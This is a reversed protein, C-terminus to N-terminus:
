KVPAAKRRFLMPVNGKPKAPQAPGDTSQKMFKQMGTAVPGIDSKKKNDKTEVAQVKKQNLPKAGFRGMMLTLPRSGAPRVSANTSGKSAKAEQTTNAKKLQLNEKNYDVLIDGLDEEMKKDKEDMEKLHTEIRKQRLFAYYQNNEIQERRESESLEEEEALQKLRLLERAGKGGQLLQEQLEEEDQSNLQAEREQIRERKRREFDDLDSDALGEVEQRQRKKNHGFIAGRMIKLTQARDDNILDQQFQALADAEADGIVANDVEKDVFGDLSSDLGDENEEVDNKNIDKRVDDKEEDDSGLEAEEDFFGKAKNRRQKM